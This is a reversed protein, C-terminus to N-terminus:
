LMPNEHPEQFGAQFSWLFPDRPVNRTKRPRGDGKRLVKRHRKEFKKVMQCMKMLERLVSYLLIYTIPFDFQDTDEFDPFAPEPSYHSTQRKVLVKKSGKDSLGAVM